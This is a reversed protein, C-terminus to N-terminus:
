RPPPAAAILADGGAPTSTHEALEVEAAAPPQGLLEGPVGDVTVEAIETEQTLGREAVHDRILSSKGAEAIQRELEECRERHEDAQQQLRQLDWEMISVRACASIYIVGGFGVLAILIAPRILEAWLAAVAGPRRRGPPRTRSSTTRRQM